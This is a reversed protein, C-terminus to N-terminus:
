LCVILIAAMSVALGAEMLGANVNRDEVIEDDLKVGPLFLRDNAIRLLPLVVAGIVAYYAFHSVRDSVTELGGGSMTLGKMLLISYALLNGGFALGVALNQRQHLEKQDDYATARQYLLAFMVLLLQGIGFGALASAWDLSGQIAGAIILASGLFGAAIIVAVSVNKRETVEHTNSFEKLILKDNIYGSLLLFLIGALTYLGVPGLEVAFDMLNFGVGEAGGGEEGDSMMVGCIIIIIALLYGTLVVGMAPNDKETLQTDLKFPTALDFLLKGFYLFAISVVIYAGGYLIWFIEIPMGSETAGGDDTDMNGPSENGDTEAPASTTPDTPTPAAGSSGNEDAGSHTLPFLILALLCSARTLKKM